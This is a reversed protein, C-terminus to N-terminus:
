KTVDIEAIYLIINEGKENVTYKIKLYQGNNTIVGGKSATKQYGLEFGNNAFEFYVGNIEFSENKHQGRIYPDFKEVYGEVTSAENNNLLKSYKFHNNYTTITTTILGVTVFMIAFHILFKTTKRVFPDNTGQFRVCKIFLCLFATLCIYTVFSALFYLPSNLHYEYLVTEM